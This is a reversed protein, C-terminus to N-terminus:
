SDNSLLQDLTIFDRVKLTTDRLKHTAPTPTDSSNVPPHVAEVQQQKRCIEPRRAEGPRNRKDPGRDSRVGLGFGAREKKGKRGRKVWCNTMHERTKGGQGTRNILNLKM